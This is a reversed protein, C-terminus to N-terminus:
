RWVYGEEPVDGVREADTIESARVVKVMKDKVYESLPQYKRYSREPDPEDVYGDSVRDPHRWGDVENGDKDYYAYRCGRDFGTAQELTESESISYDDGCCTCTVRSPNRGYRNYFIVRAEAEPAEIYIQEWELKRGGGSHMDM